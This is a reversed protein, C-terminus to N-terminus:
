RAKVEAEVAARPRDPQRAVASEVGRLVLGWLKRVAQVGCVCAACFLLRTPM